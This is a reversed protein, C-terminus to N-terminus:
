PNDPFEGRFHGSNEHISSSAVGPRVNGNLIISALKIENETITNGIFPYSKKIVWAGMNNLIEETENLRAEPMHVNQKGADIFVRAGQFDGHYNLTNIRDGMLGGSFAIIGGYRNANRACFELALCAGQAYGLFFIDKTKFQLGQLDDTLETLASLSLSLQPENHSLPSLFSSPFWSKQVAQPALFIFGPAELKNSLHIFSTAIDGKGHLMILVKKAKGFPLGSKAVTENNIIM